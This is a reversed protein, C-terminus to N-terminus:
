SNIKCNLFLINMEENNSILVRISINKAEEYIPICRFDLVLYTCIDLIPICKELGIIQFCIVWKSSVLFNWKEFVM